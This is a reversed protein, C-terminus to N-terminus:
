RAKKLLNSSSEITKKTRRNNKNKNNKASNRGTLKRLGGRSFHLGLFAPGGSYLITGLEYHFDM